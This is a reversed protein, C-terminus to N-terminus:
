GGKVVTRIFTQTGRLPRFPIPEPYRKIIKIPYLYLKDLSGWWKMAEERTVKHIAKLKEFEIRSILRPEQLSIIGLIGRPSVLALPINVMGPYYRKKLLARKKGEIIWEAHPSVVYIGRM